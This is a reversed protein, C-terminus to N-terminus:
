QEELTLRTIGDYTSDIIKVKYTASEITVTDDYEVGSIDVTRCTLVPLFGAIDNSEVYSKSLIGTIAEGGITATTGFDSTSLMAALDASSEVGM